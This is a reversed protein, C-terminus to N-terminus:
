GMGVVRLAQGVSSELQDAIWGGLFPLSAGVVLLGVVVKVPFGVAFVNLQPVVKTVVGFGVDTLLVAIMVPAAVELASAFITTFVQVVGQGISAFSPTATLPVLAFTRSMGQILWADGNIAIFVAVAVLSYLRSVVATNNGTMPDISSGFSFGIMFDLISGGAEVAAFLIAIVLAFALGVLLEKVLLGAIELADSPIQQGRVALPFLGLTFALAVITKARGPVQRSSFLPAILFLPSVRALVLFFGVVNTLGIVGLLQQATTQTASM